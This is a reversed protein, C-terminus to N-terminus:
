SVYVRVQDSFVAAYRTPSLRPHLLILMSWSQLAQSTIHVYLIVHVSDPGKQDEDM